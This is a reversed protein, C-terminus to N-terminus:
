LCLAMSIVIILFIDKQKRTFSFTNLGYETVRQIPIISFIILFPLLYFLYRREAVISLTLIMSGLALLIFLWNSRVYQSDQAFARFSFLIGFPILVM